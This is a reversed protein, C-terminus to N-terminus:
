LLSVSQVATSPNTYLGCQDGCLKAVLMLHHEYSGAIITHTVDIRPTGQNTVTDNGSSFVKRLQMQMRFRIGCTMTGLHAPLSVHQQCPTIQLINMNCQSGYRRPLKSTVNSHLLSTNQQGLKCVMICDFIMCETGFFLLHGDCVGMSLLSM